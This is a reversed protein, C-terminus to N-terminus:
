RLFLAQCYKKLATKVSAMFFDLSGDSQLFNESTGVSLGKAHTIVAKCVSTFVLHRAFLILCHNLSVCPDPDSKCKSKCAFIRATKAM